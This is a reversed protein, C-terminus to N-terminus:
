QMYESMMCVGDAGAEICLSANEPHIGGLAYVPIDVAALVNKLFDIGRPKMGSKCSTEFIHSATIYTAGLEKALVAEDVSHTSAGIVKFYERDELKLKAIQSMTLHIYPHNIRKAVEVFSHLICVKGYKKSIKIVERALKEYEDQPMDKERLIIIDVDQRLVMEIRQLFVDMWCIDKKRLSENGDLYDRHVLHRNTICIKKYM